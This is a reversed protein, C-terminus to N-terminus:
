VSLYSTSSFTGVLTRTQGAEIGSSLSLVSYSVSLDDWFFLGCLICASTFSLLEELDQKLLLGGM